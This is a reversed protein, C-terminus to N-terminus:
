VGKQKKELSGALQHFWQHLFTPLSRLIQFTTQHHSQNSCATVRPCWTLSIKKACHSKLPAHILSVPGTRVSAICEPDFNEERACVFPQSFTMNLASYKPFSLFTFEQRETPVPSQSVHSITM